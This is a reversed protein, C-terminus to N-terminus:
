NLDRPHYQVNLSIPLYSSSHSSTSCSNTSIPMFSQPISVGKLEAREVQASIKKNLRNATLVWPISLLATLRANQALNRTSSRAQYTLDQGLLEITAGAVINSLSFSLCSCAVFANVRAIKKAYRLVLM